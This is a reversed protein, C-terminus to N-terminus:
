SLDLDGLSEPLIVLRPPSGQGLILPWWAPLFSEPTQEWSPPTSATELFLSFDRFPASISLLAVSQPWPLMNGEKNGRVEGRHENGCQGGRLQLCINFTHRQQDSSPPAALVQLRGSADGPGPHGPDM